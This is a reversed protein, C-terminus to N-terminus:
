CSDLDLDNAVCRTHLIQTFFTFGGNKVNRQSRNAIAGGGGGSGDPLIHIYKNKDWLACRPQDQLCIHCLIQTTSKNEGFTNTKLDIIVLEPVSLICWIAGNKIFFILPLM